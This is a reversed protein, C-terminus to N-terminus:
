HPFAKWLAVSPHHDLSDLKKLLEHVAKVESSPLFLSITTFRPVLILNEMYQLMLEPTFHKQLCLLITSLMTGDLKNGLVSSLHSPPVAQLVQAHESLDTDGKIAQWLRIFEYPSTVTNVRQTESTEEQSPKTSTKYKNAVKVKSQKPGNGDTGPSFKQKVDKLTNAESLTEKNENTENSDSIEVVKRTRKTERKGKTEITMSLDIGSPLKQKEDLTMQMVGKKYKESDGMGKKEMTINSESSKFDKKRADELKKRESVDEMAGKEAERASGSVQVSDLESSILDKHSPLESDEGAVEEVIKETARTDGSGKEDIQMQDGNEGNYTNVNSRGERDGAAPTAMVICDSQDGMESAEKTAQKLKQRAEEKKARREARKRQCTRCKPPARHSWAPIGNCRCMTKALGWENVAVNQRSAPFVFGTSEDEITIRVSKFNAGCKMKMQEALSKAQQNGPELELVKSFDEFAQEYNNKNQQAVGRRLLAKVNLPEAKLVQSCDSLAAGYKYLKLYAMARNNYAAPTCCLSLSSTYHKVALEYDGSRYYENGRDKEQTAMVEKEVTSLNEAAHAFKDENDRKNKMKEKEQQKRKKIAQEKRQEDELEMKLLEKDVDFKDWDAYNRPVVSKMLLLGTGQNCNDSNQTKTSKMNRVTPLYASSQGVISSKKLEQERAKMKGTWEQVENSVEDWHGPELTAKTLIPEETQLVRSEPAIQRLRTEACITLQPFQGEEGSRLIKVIKEMEKRDNCKEVYEFSIHDVPIDYKTLLSKKNSKMVEEQEIM